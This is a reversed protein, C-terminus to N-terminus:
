NFAKLKEWSQKYGTLSNPLITETIHAITLEMVPKDALILQIRSLDQWDEKGPGPILMSAIDEYKSAKDKLLMNIMFSRCSPPNQLFCLGLPCRAHEVKFLDGLWFAPVNLPYAAEDNLINRIMQGTYSFVFEYGWGEFCFLYAAKLIAKSVKKEDAIPITLEVKWNLDIKSKEIWSDLLPAHMKNYPKLSIEFEGNEDVTLLTPYHGPVNTIQAKAKAMASVNRRNFSLNEMKLKLANEFHAGADNNCKKCVLIKLFGGVSEPPYHDLSFDTHAGVGISREIIIGNKLCLPCLYAFHPPINNRSQFFQSLYSDPYQRLSGFYRLLHTKLIEHSVSLSDIM